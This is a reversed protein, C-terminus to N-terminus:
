PACSIPAPGGTFMYDVLYVLDSIDLAGSANIDSAQPCLPAPGGTFMYDVLYVLDSIDLGGSNNMDGTIVCCQIHVSHAASWETQAGFADKARVQVNYDGEAYTHGITCTEGSAYPGLWASVKSGDDFEWQYYLEDADADTTASEFFYEVDLIGNDPGADVAAPAPDANASVGNGIRVVVDYSDDGAQEMRVVLDLRVVNRLSNYAIGARIASYTSGGIVVRNGGDIYSCPMWYNNFEALRPGALPNGTGTADQGVLAVYAFNYNGATYLTNLAARM